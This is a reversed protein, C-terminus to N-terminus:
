SKQWPNFVIHYFYSTENVALSNTCMMDLYWSCIGFCISWAAQLVHSKNYSFHSHYQVDCPLNVLYM